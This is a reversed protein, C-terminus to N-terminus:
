DRELENRLAQTKKIFDDLKRVLTQAGADAKVADRLETLARISDTSADLVRKVADLRISAADKKAGAAVKQIDKTLRQLTATRQGISALAADISAGILDRVTDAALDDLTQFANFQIFEGLDEMCTARCGDAGSRLCEAANALLIGLAAAWEDLRAPDLRTLDTKTTM